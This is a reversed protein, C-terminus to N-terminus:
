FAPRSFATECNGVGEELLLWVFTGGVRTRVLDWSLNIVQKGVAAKPFSHFIAFRGPCEIQSRVM